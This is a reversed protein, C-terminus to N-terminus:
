KPRGGNHSCGNWVPVSRGGRMHQRTQCTVSPETSTSVPLLTSMPLRWVARRMSTCITPPSGDLGDESQQSGGAASIKILALTLLSYTVVAMLVPISYTLRVAGCSCRHAGLSGPAVSRVAEPSALPMWALAGFAAQM